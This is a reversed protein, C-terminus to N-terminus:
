MNLNFALFASLLDEDPRMILPLVEFALLDAREKVTVASVDVTLKPCDTERVFPPLEVPDRQAVLLLAMQVTSSVPVTVETPAPVQM